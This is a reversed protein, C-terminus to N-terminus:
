VLNGGGNVEVVTGSVYGDALVYAISQAVDRAEGVRGVPLARATQTFMQDRETESLERWLETRVIGPAIANVRLPALEVALTRTIAEVAGCVAAGIMWGAGPRAAVNGSMLVISGGPRILRHAHKIAGLAAWLRTETFRRAEQLDVTDLPFARLPEGATYVLHDFRGLDSFLRQVADESNVDVVHGVASTPLEALAAEVRDSSRSAIVIEAGAEGLLRAAALGLGASGGLLVVRQGQLELMHSEKSRLSVAFPTKLIARLSVPRLASKPWPSLREADSGIQIEGLESGKDGDSLRQVKPSGGFIQVDGLRREAALDLGQLALEPDHQQLAVPAGDGEGLRSTLQEFVGDRQEGGGIGGSTACLAGAASGVAEDDAESRAQDEGVRDAPEGFAMGRDRDVGPADVPVLLLARHEASLDVDGVNASGNGFTPQPEDRQEGFWPERRERGSM